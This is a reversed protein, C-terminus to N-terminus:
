LQTYRTLNLRSYNNGATLTTHSFVVAFEDDDKNRM